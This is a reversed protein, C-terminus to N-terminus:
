PVFWNVQNIISLTIGTLFVKESVNYMYKNHYKRTTDHRNIKVQNRCKKTLGM